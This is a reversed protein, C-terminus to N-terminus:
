DHVQQFAPSSCAKAELHSPLVAHGSEQSLTSCRLTSGLNTHLKALADLFVTRSALVEEHSHEAAPYQM